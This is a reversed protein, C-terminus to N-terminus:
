RSERMVTPVSLLPRANPIISCKHRLNSILVSAPPTLAGGSVESPDEIPNKNFISCSQNQFLSPQGCRYRPVKERHESVLKTDVLGLSKAATTYYNRSVLSLSSDSKNAQHGISLQYSKCRQKSEELLDERKNKCSNSFEVISHELAVQWSCDCCLLICIASM